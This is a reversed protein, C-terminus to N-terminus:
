SYQIACSPDQHTGGVPSATKKSSETPEDGLGLAAIGFSHPTIIISKTIIDRLSPSLCFSPSLPLLPAALLHTQIHTSVLHTTSSPAVFRGPRWDDPPNANLSAFLSGSCCGAPSSPLVAEGLSRIPRRSVVPVRCTAREYQVPVSSRSTQSQLSSAATVRRIQHHLNLNFSPLHASRFARPLM